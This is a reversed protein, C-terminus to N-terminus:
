RKLFLDFPTKQKKTRSLHQTQAHYVNKYRENEKIVLIELILQSVHHFIGAVDLIRQAPAIASRVNVLIVQFCTLLFM